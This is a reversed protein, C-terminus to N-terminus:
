QLCKRCVPIYSEEGGILITENSETIRKTFFALTGDNCVKCFASLREVNEAIPIIRLMEGFPRQLYDGDLGCVYVHKEKSAVSCFNYLNNYFQGENICIIDANPYLDNNLIEHLDRCSICDLGIHDHTMMKTEDSYRLDDSYNIVMVNKNIIRNRRAIKILESTKGSFMCGIIVNVSGVM